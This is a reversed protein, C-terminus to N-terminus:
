KCQEMKELLNKLCEEYNKGSVLPYENWEINVTIRIQEDIEYYNIKEIMKNTKILNSLKEKATNEM